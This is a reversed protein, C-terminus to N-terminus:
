FNTKKISSIELNSLILSQFKFDYKLEKFGMIPFDKRLPYGNFGYDNLIRRLDKNNTIYIGFFDFIERESWISNIFLENISNISDKEKLSLFLICERNYYISKFIYFLEFYPKIKLLYDTCSIEILYNFRSLSSYKLIKIALLLYNKHTLYFHICLNSKLISKQIIKPFCKNFIYIGQKNYTKKIM